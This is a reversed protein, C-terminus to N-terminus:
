KGLGEKARLKGYRGLVSWKIRLSKEVHEIRKYFGRLMRYCMTLSFGHKPSKWIKKQREVPDVPSDSM